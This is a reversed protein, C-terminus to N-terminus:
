PTRDPNIASVSILKVPFTKILLFTRYFLCVVGSPRNQVSSNISVFFNNTSNTRNSSDSPLYELFRHMSQRCDSQTNTWDGGTKEKM